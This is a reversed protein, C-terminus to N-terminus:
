KNRKMGKLMEGVTETRVHLRKCIETQPVGGKSLEVALLNQLLEIITDLKEQVLQDHDKAM